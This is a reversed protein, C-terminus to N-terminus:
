PRCSSTMVWDRDSAHLNVYEVDAPSLDAEKMADRLVAIEGKESPSPQRNADCRISAGVLQAYSRVPGSSRAGVREVVLAACSEGFIFGDRALDMPRCAKHPEDKFVSSGMAGLSRFAQCEWASLDMMGGVAICFDVRGSLVAEHAQIVSVLGSASAGGATFSPGVIGFTQTCLGCLDTDMFALAYGPNLFAANGKTKERALLLERQNLNSGGVILGIRTPDEGALGADKWAQSVCSLALHGTLSVTRLLKPNLEPVDPLQKIEAGIFPDTEATRGARQLYGFVNGPNFLSDAFAAVGSAGATIVGLGTIRTKRM